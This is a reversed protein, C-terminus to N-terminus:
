LGGIGDLSGASEVISFMEPRFLQMKLFGRWALRRIMGLDDIVPLLVPHPREGVGYVVGPGGMFISAHVHLGTTVFDGDAHPKLLPKHLSIRKNVTDISVIRRTEQTGDAETIPAGATSSSQSSVTIYQGVVFGTVAHVQIYRTSISQGVNYVKDVTSAAGQGPVTAGDLNTQAVVAGHNLLRNRNTKIFRVGGWMGVESNFKKMPQAYKVVDIWDSGAATRIDKIVRPTTACVMDRSEGDGVANLGPVENEELHVRVTEVIDPVFLDSSTLSARDARDGAFIPTPHSLFANRALIDLHAIMNQGLKGDVLGRLDGNNWYNVLENYDSIKIVDGHIELDITVSRSDLSAGKLWVVNETFPNWNPETDLVESYIVSGTDRRAFDEKMVTFPVLVSKTRLNELLRAEYYARQGAPLSSATLLGTELEDAM